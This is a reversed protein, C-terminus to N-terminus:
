RKVKTIEIAYAEAEAQFFALDDNNGEEEDDDDDEEDLDAEEEQLGASRIPSVGHAAHGKNSRREKFKRLKRALGDAM